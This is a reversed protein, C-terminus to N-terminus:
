KEKDKFLAGHDVGRKEDIKGILYGLGFSLVAAGIVIMATMM